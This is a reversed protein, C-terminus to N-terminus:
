SPTGENGDARSSGDFLLPVALVTGAFIALVALSTALMVQSACRHEGGLPFFTFHLSMSTVRKSPPAIASSHAADSNAPSNISLIM